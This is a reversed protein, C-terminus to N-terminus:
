RGRGYKLALAGSVFVSLIGLAVAPLFSDIMSQQYAKLLQELLEKSLWKGHKLYNTDHLLSKLIDDGHDVDKLINSLYTVVSNDYIALSIGVGLVQGVSRFLYNMGTAAAQGEKGVIAVVTILVSVLYSGYGFGMITLGVSIVIKWGIDEDYPKPVKMVEFILIVGTFVFGISAFSIWLSLSKVDIKIRKLLHGATLSGVSAFIVILTLYGGSARTSQNQVIQLFSPIGFMTSYLVFTGAFSSFGCIGLLGKVLNSPLIQEKAIYTEIYLFAGTSLLFITGLVLKNVSTSLLLLFATISIVLTISGGFDIRALNEKTLKKGHGINVHRYTLWMCFIVSPVQIGFIWRWGITTLLIAGLPAGLTQGLAYNLNAYGQYLGREELPVIDSVVISSMAGLGGGGIGCVARAISFHIVDTSFISVFCGLGFFFQAFMLAYKRGVIDSVKGYLPQFATNTLLYSTAIWSKLDEQQFDAAIGGMINAVVTGDMAALFSGLWLAPLILKLNYKHEPVDELENCLGENSDYVPTSNTLLATTPDLSRQTKGDLPQNKSM